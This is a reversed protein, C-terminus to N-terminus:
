FEQGMINYSRDKSIVCLRGNKLITTPKRSTSDTQQETITIATATLDADYGIAQTPLSTRRTLSTGYIHYESWHGFGVELYAIRPANGYRANFDTYLQKTLWKLESNSWDAYYTPGDGGPNKSYTESYDSLAKIYAPVGSTGKNNDVM